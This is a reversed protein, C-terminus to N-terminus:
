KRPLLDMQILHPGPTNLAHELKHKLLECSTVRAASVGMGESIKVWDVPPHDLNMLLNSNQGPPKNGARHYELKLIDYSNNACILTTINLHDRAHMWLSQLTYMAAGDGLFSIVPRDPCAFAAGTGCAMGQGLAGGTMTLLSHFSSNAAIASYAGGSTIAEEVVIANEPILASLIRCINGGTLNGSPLPSFDTSQTLKKHDMEPAGVRDILADLIEPLNLNGQNFRIVTQDESILQCSTDKYGFFSVIPKTGILIISAYPSLEKIAQEPFYPIRKLSPLGKGIHAHAPFSDSLLDCGTAKQIRAAKMLGDKRLANKGLIVLTKKNSKLAEAAQDILDSNVPDYSFSPCCITQNKCEGWQLDQPVILTAVQGKMACSIANATDRSLTELSTCTKQWGPITSALTEIDMALPADASKHWSAHDGIINVIPTNARHANHLNALGNALGPGLHLLTLAPLGAMRGYGDAAGTCCGEFLGLVAKIGPVSDLAEVLPMETTGPNAFCIKIGANVATKIIVQAGNM